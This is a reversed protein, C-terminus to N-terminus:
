RESSFVLKSGDPSFVPGRNINGVKKEELLTPSNSGDAPMSYLYSQWWSRPANSVKDQEVFVIRQGDPSWAPPGLLEINADNSTYLIAVKSHDKTDITAIHDKGGQEGTFVLRKGDPSWNARRVQWGTAVLLPESDGTAIDILSIGNRNADYCLVQKGNPSWHPLLGESVWRRHTGDADMIWIGPQAGVPNGGVTAYVIQRDNPSWDPSIGYGIDLTMGKFPGELAYIYVKSQTASDITPAGSFILMKGDHSWQPDVSAIMDPAATLFEAQTGNANILYLGRFGKDKRRLLDSTHDAGNVYRRLVNLQSRLSELDRDVRQFQEDISKTRADNSEPGQRAPEEAVAVHAGVLVLTFLLPVAVRSVTFM